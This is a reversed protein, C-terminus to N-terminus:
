PAQLRSWLTLCDAVDMWATPGWVIHTIRTWAALGGRSCGSVVCFQWARGGCVFQGEEVDNGEAACCFKEM